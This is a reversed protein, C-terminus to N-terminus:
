KSVMMPDYNRYKGTTKFKNIAAYPDMQGCQDSVIKGSTENGKLAALMITDDRGRGTAMNKVKETLECRERSGMTMCGRSHSRRSGSHMNCGSMNAPPGNPTTIKGSHNLGEGKPGVRYGAGARFSCKDSKHITNANFIKWGEYWASGGSGKTWPGVSLGRGGHGTIKGNRDIYFLRSDNRSPTKSNDPNNPNLLLVLVGNYPIEGKKFGICELISEAKPNPDFTGQGQDERPTSTGTEDGPGNGLEGDKSTNGAVKNDRTREGSDKGGSGDTNGNGTPGQTNTNNKSVCNPNNHEIIASCTTRIIVIGNEDSEVCKEEESSPYKMLNNGECRTNPCNIQKLPIQSCSGGYYESNPDTNITEGDPTGWYKDLANIVGDGDEDEDLNSDTDSGICQGNILCTGKPCQCGMVPNKNKSCKINQKGCVEKKTNCENIFEKWDGGSDICAALDDTSKASKTVLLKTIGKESLYNILENLGDEIDTEEISYSGSFSELERVGIIDIGSEYREISFLEQLKDALDTEITKFENNLFIETYGNDSVIFEYIDQTPINGDNGEISYFKLTEEREAMNILDLRTNAVNILSLDLIAAQDKSNILSSLNNVTAIHQPIINTEPTYALNSLEDCNIKYWKEQKMGLGMFVLHVTLFSLLIAVFGSISYAVMKKAKRIEENRGGTVLYRYGAIILFLIAIVFSISLLYNFVISVTQILSCVSCDIGNCSVLQEARSLQPLFLFILLYWKKLYKM